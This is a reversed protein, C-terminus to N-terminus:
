ESARNAPMAATVPPKMRVQRDCLRAVEPSHTIVLLTWNAAPGMIAPLVAQRAEEDMHDLVDDVIMLRPQGVIARALMLRALQGLSLNGGTVMQTQLGEPMGLINELLGVTRLAQLVDAIAIEDRGMRINDLVTGSFVEFGRVVAVHDRLSELNLDQYDIGDIELYGRTPPRLGFIMDVLTTKGTGNAGLLAVREGSHLSLNFGQLVPQRSDGYSFDVQRIQLSAGRSRAQHAVGGMRELPLDVLHGLKEVAALMEYFSSLQKGFKTFSLVVMTVVLEAAVLQGLTLQGEVVLFGGLALLATTALAYIALAFSVQRFVIAFHSQRANLYDRTLLDTQELAFHPGGSLKFATPHRGLEELWGALAYKSRSEAIATRVAGRGLPYIMFALAALLLLDFGLLVQHYTALLALGILASLALEMGDLLLTAASKQVTLVAFFRNVLEPGHHRDFAWQCVRPLRYALDAAVRVFVRRQIYEVVVLQLAMLLAALALCALLGFCLIILQQLLTALAVTNVVAMLAIPTALNLVGIAAAYAVVIWIDRKEPRVLGLLRSFPPPGHSEHAEALVRGVADGLPTAPQAILWELIVNADAVDFREALEDPTLYEDADSAIIRALRGKGGRREILMFWRATGDSEVAFLALPTSPEVIALAEHVSLQRSLLQLGIKQAAKALRQRSARTATPPVDLEAQRLARKARAEDFPVEAARAMQRLVALNGGPTESSAAPPLRSRDPERDEKPPDTM